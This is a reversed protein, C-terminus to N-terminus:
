DWKCVYKLKEYIYRFYIVMLIEYSIAIMVYHNFFIDNVEEYYKKYKYIIKNNSKKM